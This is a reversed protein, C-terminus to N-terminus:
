EDEDDDGKKFVEDLFEKLFIENSERQAKRYWEGVWTFESGDTM